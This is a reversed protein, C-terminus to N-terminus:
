FNINESILLNSNIEDQDLNQCFYNVHTLNWKITKLNFTTRSVFKNYSSILTLSQQFKTCYCIVPKFDNPEISLGM